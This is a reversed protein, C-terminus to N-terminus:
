VSSLLCLMAIGVQFASFFVFLYAFVITWESQPWYLLGFIWPTGLLSAFVFSVYLMKRMRSPPPPATLQAASDPSGNGNGSGSDGIFGSGSGYSASSPPPATVSASAAAATAASQFNRQRDFVRSVVRLSLIFFTSNILLILIVPVVFLYRSYGPPFFPPHPFHLHNTTAFLFPSM